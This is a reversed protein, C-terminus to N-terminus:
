ESSAVVGEDRENRASARFEAARVATELDVHFFPISTLEPPSVSECGTVSVDTSGYSLKNKGYVGIRPASMDQHKLASEEDVVSAVPLIHVTGQLNGYNVVPAVESPFEDSSLGKGFGGAVLGRAIWPSM